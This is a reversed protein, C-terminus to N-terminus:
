SKDEKCSWCVASRDLRSLGTRQFDTYARIHHCNKCWALVLADSLAEHFGAERRLALTHERTTSLGKPANDARSAM